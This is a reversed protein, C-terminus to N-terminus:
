PPMIIWNGQLHRYIEYGEVLVLAVIIFSIFLFLLSLKNKFRTQISRVIFAVFVIPGIAVLSYAFPNFVFYTDHLQIEGEKFYYDYGFILMPIIGGVLVCAAFLLLDKNKM